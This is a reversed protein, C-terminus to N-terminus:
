RNHTRRIVAKSQFSGGHFGSPLLICSRPKLDLLKIEPLFQILPIVRSAVLIYASRTKIGNEEYFTKAQAMLYQSKLFVLTLNVM